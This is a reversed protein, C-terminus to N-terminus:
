VLLQWGSPITGSVTEALDLTKLPEIEAAIGFAEKSM